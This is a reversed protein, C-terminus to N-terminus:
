SFLVARVSFDSLFLVFFFVVAINQSYLLHMITLLINVLSNLLM